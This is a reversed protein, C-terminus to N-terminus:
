SEAGVLLDNAWDPLVRHEHHRASIGEWEYDGCIWDHIIEAYGLVADRQGPELADALRRLDTAELEVLEDVKRQALRSGYAMAERRTCDRTREILHIANHGGTVDEHRLSMSDNRLAVLDAGLRRMRHLVPDHWVAPAVETGGWHEGLDNQGFACTTAARLPFYADLDPHVRGDTRDIAETLQSSFYASWHYSVRTRLAASMGHTMRPWLDAFARVTPAPHHEGGPLGHVTDILTGCVAAVRRPDRGLEGDLQDDFPLFYWGMMQAATAADDADAHPYFFGAVEALRWAVFDDVASEGQLLGFARMWDIARERAQELHPNSRLPWPTTFVVGEYTV